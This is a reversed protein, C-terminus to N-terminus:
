EQLGEGWWFRAVYVWYMHSGESFIDYLSNELLQLLITNGNSNLTHPRPNFLM